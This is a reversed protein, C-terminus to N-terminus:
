LVAHLRHVTRQMITAKIILKTTTMPFDYM